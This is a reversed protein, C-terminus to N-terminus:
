RFHIKETGHSLKSLKAVSTAMLIGLELVVM